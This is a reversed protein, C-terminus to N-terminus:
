KLSLLKLYNDVLMKALLNLNFKDFNTELLNRDSKIDILEIENKWVEKILSLYKVNLTAKSSRSILDSAICKLGSMQAELLVLGFSEFLSPFLFIDAASYFKNIDLTNNIFIINNKDKCKNLIAPKSDGEGIFILVYKNPNLDRMLDVLFQQNKQKNFVGVHLLVIKNDLNYKRRIEERFKVNYKFKNYDVPNNLIIFNKNFAYKGAEESCAIALDISSNFPRKLLKNFFTHTSTTNHNHAVVKCYKSLGLTDLLMTSSNGHVHVIDIKNDRILNIIEKRYKFIKKREPVNLFVIGNQKCLQVYKDDLYGYTTLFIQNKKDHSLAVSLNVIVEAIGNINYQITNIM